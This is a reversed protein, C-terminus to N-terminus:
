NVGCDGLLLKSYLKQQEEKYTKKVNARKLQGDWIVDALGGRVAIAAKVRNAFQVADEGDEKSMPPLYWISCVIAWSSMMTLLYVVLGFRSSNWFAEGFRPDYKIAVPYVPCGVEFTGKRFMMVSTNNICTGEPFIVPPPKTKDAVHDKLRKVVLHREEAETREFWIHASCKLMARQIMGFLGGHLQGVMSCSGDNSLFIVDMPTTHNAVCIGDNKPKNERNHYTIVATLSTACLRCGLWQVKESLYSKIRTNPLFSVFTASVLFLSIGAAAILMRAPLLVGYRVLIGLAWLVAVPRTVHCDNKNSRTMLNWGDLEQASFCKTVEDDVISEVGRRCFFILDALEFESDSASDCVPGRIKQIEQQMSVIPEKDIIGETTIPLMSESTLVSFWCRSINMVEFIKLLTRLYFTSVGSVEGPVTSVIVFLITLASWVTMTANLCGWLLSDEALLFWAM